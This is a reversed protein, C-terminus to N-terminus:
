CLIQIHSFLAVLYNWLVECSLLLCILPIHRSRRTRNSLSGSNKLRKIMPSSDHIKSYSGSVFRWLRSQCVEFEGQGLFDLILLDSILNISMKKCGPSRGCPIQPVLVFQWYFIKIPLDKFPEPFPHCKHSWANCASPHQVVIVGWTM